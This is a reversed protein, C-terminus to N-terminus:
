SNFSEGKEYYKAQRDCSNKEKPVAEGVFSFLDFTMGTFNCRSPTQCFKFFNSNRNKVCGGRRHNVNEGFICHSSKESRPLDTLTSTGAKEPIPLSMHHRVEVNDLAGSPDLNAEFATFGTFRHPREVRETEALIVPVRIHLFM